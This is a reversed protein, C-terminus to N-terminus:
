PRAGAARSVGLLGGALLLSWLPDPESDGSALTCGGGGGDTSAATVTGGGGGAAPQPAPTVGRAEAVAGAANLIGAGCTSTDCSSDPFPSASAQLIDSVQFPALGPQASLILSAVASVQATAVSTGVLGAYTDAGPVTSGQNYTSLIGDFRDGGPASLTVGTGINTYSARKGARTTAAVTIVNDCGAPSTAAVDAGDGNGAATVVVSGQAVVEDVVAQVFASCPQDGGFSLNIVDAPFPNDPVGSVPLGVSWVMADLIDTFPGGCKGLVRVPLLRAFHNIGAIGEGNDATGILVGAVHLGHWSSNEAPSGPECEGAAVADGPDSPDADRGDGDNATFVDSIFDYGALIRTSDLDEHPLIGTDLQAIVITDAGREMDWATPMDISAAGTQLNWQRDFLSDNPVFKPMVWRDAEAHRVEPLAEILRALRDAAARDLPPSFALVHVGPVMRRLRELVLGPLAGQLARTQAALWADIDAPPQGEFQLLLRHVGPGSAWVPAAALLLLLLAVGLCRAPFGRSDPM